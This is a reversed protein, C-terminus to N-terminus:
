LRGLGRRYPGPQHSNHLAVAADDPARIRADDPGSRDRLRRALRRYRRRGDAHQRPQLAGQRLERGPAVSGRLLRPREGSRGTRVDGHGPHELNHSPRPRQHAHDQAGRHSGRVPGPQALRLGPQQRGRCERPLPDPLTPVTAGGRPVARSPPGPPGPQQGTRCPRASAGARSRLLFHLGQLRRGDRARDGAHVLCLRQTRGAGPGQPGM